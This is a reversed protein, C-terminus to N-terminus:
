VNVATAYDENMIDAIITYLGILKILFPSIHHAPKELLLYWPYISSQKAERRALLQKLLLKNITKIIQQEYRM